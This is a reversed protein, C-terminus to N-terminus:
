KLNYSFEEKKSNTKRVQKIFFSSMYDNITIERLTKLPPVLESQTFTNSNQTNRIM